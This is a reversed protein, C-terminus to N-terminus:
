RGHIFGEPLEVQPLPAWFSGSQQWAGVGVTSGLNARYFEGMRALDEPSMEAYDVEQGRRAYLHDYLIRRLQQGDLYPSPSVTFYLDENGTAVLPMDFSSFKDFGIFIDVAKVYEGYYREVLARRDPIRGHEAHYVVAMEAITESADHAFLGFFLRNRSNAATRAMVEDFLDSLHAHRTRAFHRAYDGYFRVRVGYAEFFGLFEPHNALRALGEAAMQVYEDGRELIDPGFAPTLLTDLGHDFFLQYLEIHRRAIMDLYRSSFGGEDALGHELLFWRRTGNIPFVCVKPGAKRVLRAVESAPLRCFTEAEM